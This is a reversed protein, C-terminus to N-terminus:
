VSIAGLRLWTLSSATAEMCASLPSRGEIRGLGPLPSDALATKPHADHLFNCHSPIQLDVKRRKTGKEETAEQGECSAEEEATAEVCM